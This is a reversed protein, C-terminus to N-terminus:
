SSRRERREDGLGQSASPEPTPTLTKSRCGWPKSPTRGSTTCVYGRVIAGDRITACRSALRRGRDRRAGSGRARRETAVVVVTVPRSSSTSARDPDSEWYEAFESWSRAFRTSVASAPQGSRSSAVRGCEVTRSSSTMVCSRRWDGRNFADFAATVIEVNEQSMARATDRLSLLRRSRRAGVAGRSRPSRKREQYLEVRVVQGDRVHLGHLVHRPCRSAREVHGHGRADCCVVVRDGADILETPEIASTEWRRRVLGRRVRRSTSGRYVGRLESRVCRAVPGADVDPDLTRVRRRVDGRNCPRSRSARDGREGAVDGVGLPRLAELAAADQQSCRPAADVSEGHRRHGTSTGPQRRACRAGVSM